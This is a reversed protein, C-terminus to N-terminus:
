PRPPGAFCVRIEVVRGDRVAIVATNRFIGGTSM